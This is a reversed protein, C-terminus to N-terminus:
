ASENKWWKDIIINILSVRQVRAGHHATAAGNWPLSIGKTHGHPLRTSARCCRALSPALTHTHAHTHSKNPYRLSSSFRLRQTHTHTNADGACGRREKRLSPSGSLEPYCSAWHTQGRTIVGGGSNAEEGRRMHHKRTM